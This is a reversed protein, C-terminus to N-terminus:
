LALDLSFSLSLLAFGQNTDINTLAHKVREEEYEKEMWTM